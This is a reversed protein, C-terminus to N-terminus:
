QLGVADVVGGPCGGDTTPAARILAAIDADPSIEGALGVTLETVIRRGGDNACTVRVREGAGAGFAADFAARIEAQTVDEGIREAFLTRVASGNVAAMVTLSDAFYEEADTGYCTGHKVWEHRELASRTGPMTEALATQTAASLDVPALDSWRGARDSAQDAAAVGCYEVGRPQPWLGHLSFNTTDFRGETQEACEPKGPRTECFAPQWSIAIVLDAHAAGDTQGGGAVPESDGPVGTGSGDNSVSGGTGDSPAVMAVWDGCGKAIWRRSPEAGQVEILYHTGDARNEGILRYAREVVLSVNGPNAANRIAPTAPCASRAVVFGDLPVQAEAQGPLLMLGALLPIYRRM